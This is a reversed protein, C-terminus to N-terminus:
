RDSCGLWGLVQPAPSFFEVGVEYLDCKDTRCPKCWRVVAEIAPVARGVFAIALHDGKTLKTACRFRIGLASADVAHASNWRRQPAVCYAIPASAARRPARRRQEMPLRSERALLADYAARKQPDKLVEYAANIEKALDENGGLDPHVRLAQMWARYVATVVEPPAKPTIGLIDYFTGAM